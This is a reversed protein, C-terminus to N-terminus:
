SVVEENATFTKEIEKVASKQLILVQNNLLDYTSAKSAELVKVKPINRGSKYVNPNNAETLLLVKKGGVKLASLIKSFDKTKPQDLNFDEVVLLQADKAKYSFASKRALRRVKKPLDQRYDRPRPGFITGGGVWLPSRSTGARAGGRGKQKWPKKGGGRVEAREKSKSTGQRQNALFAKVSLYIAHDNPEIAFISDSLDIKDGSKSGDIKLVDLTM